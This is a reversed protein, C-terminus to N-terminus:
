RNALSVILAGVFILAGGAMTALNPVEGRYLAIAFLATFLPYSIELLAALTANKSSISLGIFVEAIVFSAVLAGTLLLLSRSSTITRLDTIFEGQILALATMSICAFFSCIALASLVSVHKYLQEDLVYVLGWFLSAALSFVIWM